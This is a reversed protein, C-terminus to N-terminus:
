LAMRHGLLVPFSAQFEKLLLQRGLFEVGPNARQLDLRAPVLGHERRGILINAIVNRKVVEFPDAVNELMKAGAPFLDM